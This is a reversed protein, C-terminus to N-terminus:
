ACMHTTHQASVAYDDALELTNLMITRKNPYKSKTYKLKINFERVVISCWDHRSYKIWTLRITAFYHFLSKQFYYSLNNSSITNIVM